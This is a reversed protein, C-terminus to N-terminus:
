VVMEAAKGLFGEGFEVGTDAQGVVGPVALARQLLHQPLQPQVRLCHVLDAAVRGHLLLIHSLRHDLNQVRADVEAVEVVLCCVYSHKHGHEAPKGHHGRVDNVVDFVVLLIGPPM